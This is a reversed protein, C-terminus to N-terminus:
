YIRFEVPIMEPQHWFKKSGNVIQRIARMFDVEMSEAEAMCDTTRLDACELKRNRRDESTRMIEVASRLSGPPRLRDTRGGNGTQSEKEHLNIGSVKLDTLM